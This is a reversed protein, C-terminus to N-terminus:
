KGCKVKRFKKASDKLSISNEVKDDIYRKMFRNREGYVKKRLRRVRRKMNGM